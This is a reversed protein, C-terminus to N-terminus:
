TLAVLPAPQLGNRSEFARILKAAEFGDMVPMQCDLLVLDPRRGNTCMQEVVSAGTEVHVVNVGLRELAFKAVLTNVENDEALLVTGGDKRESSLPDPRTVGFSAPDKLHVRKLPLTVVFTSGKGVVSTCTVDGKMQRCIARTINLGLGTGGHRRTSSADAQSFPQFLGALVTSSMGIGTDVVAISLEEGDDSEQASVRVSGGPDTFKLANGVLNLLIQRLRFPDISVIFPSKFALAVTLDVRQEVANPMCMAITEDITKILDIEQPTVDIGHAEFRSFELVNNILGLLHEGSKRILKVAARDSPVVSTSLARSLGLIGHLPTRLEHSMNAVFLDKARSDRNAKDLATSLEATLEANDFRLTLLEVVHRESRKAVTLLLILFTLIACGGYVGFADM